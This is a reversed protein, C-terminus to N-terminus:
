SLGGLPLTSPEIVQVRRLLEGARQCVQETNFGFTQMVVAGPASAGPSTPTAPGSSRLAPSPNSLLRAPVAPALGLNNKVWAYDQCM